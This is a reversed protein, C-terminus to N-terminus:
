SPIEPVAAQEAFYKKFLQDRFGDDKMVQDGPQLGGSHPAGTSWPGMSTAPRSSASWRPTRSRSRTSRASCSRSTSCSPTSRAPTSPEKAFDVEFGGTLSDYDDGIWFPPAPLETGVTLTGPTILSELQPTEGGGPQAGSREEDGDGCGAAV